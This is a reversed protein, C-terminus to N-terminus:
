LGLHLLLVLRHWQGWLLLLLELLCRITSTGSLKILTLPAGPFHVVLLLLLLLVLRILHLLVIHVQLILLLVAVIM